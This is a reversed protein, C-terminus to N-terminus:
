PARHNYSEGNLKRARKLADAVSSTGREDMLLEQLQRQRANSLLRAIIEEYTEGKSGFEKIQNKTQESVAITTGM